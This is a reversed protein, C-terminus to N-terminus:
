LRNKWERFPDMEVIGDSRPGKGESKIWQHLQHYWSAVKITSRFWGRLTKSHSVVHTQSLKESNQRKKYVQLCFMCTTSICLQRTSSAVNKWWSAECMTNMYNEGAATSPKPRPRRCQSIDRKGPAMRCRQHRNPWACLWVRQWFPKSLLCLTYIPYMWCVELM